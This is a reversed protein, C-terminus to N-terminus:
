NKGFDDKDKRPFVKTEITLFRILKEKEYRYTNSNRKIFNKASALIHSGKPVLISTLLALIVIVILIELLSFGLKFAGVRRKM